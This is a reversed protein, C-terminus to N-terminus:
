GTGVARELAALIHDLSAELRGIMFSRYPLENRRLQLEQLADIYAARHEPGIVVPPYGAQMLLLNMLLRGTRGNGDSFPHIAVLRAHASFATDFGAPPAALWIAFDGM